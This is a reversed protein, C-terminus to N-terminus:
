GPSCRIKLPRIHEGNTISQCGARSSEPGQYRATMGTKQHLYATTEKLKRFDLM